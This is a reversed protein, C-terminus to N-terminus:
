TARMKRVDLRISAARTYGPVDSEPIQTTRVQYGAAIGNLGTLLSKAQDKMKKGAAEMDRGEVYQVVAEQIDPTDIFDNESVPLDGRCVTYFECIRECVPAAVDRSADENHAVAYIVDDVWQNIEDTLLPDMEEIVVYPESEEGSRDIYINGVYVPKSDDLLGDQIAGMAYLHRQYKHNQSTGFRKIKEFGDVTKVDLVMNWEPVIIDPSGAIVSGNPLVASVRVSEIIWSPFLPRLAEFMWNHIATGINAAATSRSDTKSVGKTMLAAKQRCWGIDSPGLIGENSQVTRPTSDSAAKLATTILSGVEVATPVSM